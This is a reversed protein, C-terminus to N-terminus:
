KRPEYDINNAWMLLFIGLAVLISTKWIILGLGVTGLILKFIQMTKNVM